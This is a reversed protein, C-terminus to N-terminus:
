GLRTVAEAVRGRLEEPLPAYGLRAAAAQGAPSATYTLFSRVLPGARPCVIEYTVLVIPYAGAAATGYDVALRLDGRTGAAAVTRGAAEDTPAAFEGAGNRVRATMLDHFRAYSAEVYGIAGATRAIASAVGNSGRRAVGGPAPWASGSGLRWDAGGAAALFATFNATTGSSDDRHVTRIATSPLVVGPNDAAIVPDDWRTVAGAFIKAVTAPALRLEGTGAVNYALAVPGVAMPLHVAPGGCRADAAAQQEATLPSDSGAFDGTGALFAKVGAGSGTSTYAVTADACAVQYNRIWTNVANTQASSGQGRLSGTACAIPAAAPDPTATRGCAGASVALLVLAAVVRARM